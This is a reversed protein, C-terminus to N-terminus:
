GPFSSPTFIRCGFDSIRFLNLARLGFPESDKLPQRNRSRLDESKKRTESKSRRIQGDHTTRVIVLSVSTTWVLPNGSWIGGKCGGRVSIGGVNQSWYLAQTRSPLASKSANNAPVTQSSVRGFRSTTM